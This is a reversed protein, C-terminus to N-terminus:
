YRSKALNEGVLTLERINKLKESIKSYNYIDVQGNRRFEWKM